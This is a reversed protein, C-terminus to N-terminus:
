VWIRNFFMGQRKTDWEYFYFVESKDLFKINYHDAPPLNEEIPQYFSNPRDGFQQSHFKLQEGV